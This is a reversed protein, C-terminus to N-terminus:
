SDRVLANGAENVHFRLKRCGCGDRPREMEPSSLVITESGSQVTMSVSLYEGTDFVENAVVRGPESNDPYPQVEQCDRACVEIFDAEDLVGADWTIVVTSDGCDVGCENTCAAWGSPGVLAAALLAM